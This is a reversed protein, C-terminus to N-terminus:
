QISYAGRVLLTAQSVATVGHSPQSIMYLHNATLAQGAALTGGTTPDIVGGNEAGACRAAGARLLVECGPRGILTKGQSLTVVQYGSSTRGGLSAARIKEDLKDEYTSQAQSIEKKTLSLVNQTFTDKLYGLTVLPNDSTGVSALASLGTILVAAVLLLAILTKKRKM